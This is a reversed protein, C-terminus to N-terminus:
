QKCDNRARRTSTLVSQRAPLTELESISSRYRNWIEPVGFTDIYSPYPGAQATSGKDQSSCYSARGQLRMKALAM